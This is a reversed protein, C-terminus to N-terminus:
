PEWRMLIADEGHAYYGRRSGVRQWGEREYLRLAAVNGARVELFGEVVGAGRWHDQCAELLRAGWGRRRATPVVGVTLVEGQDAVVSAVLHGVSRGGDVAIWARTTPRALTSAVAEASWPHAAAARELEAVLGADDPGARRIM